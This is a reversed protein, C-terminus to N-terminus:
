ALNLNPGKPQKDSSLEFRIRSIKRGIKITVATMKTDSYSNIDRVATEIVYKYFDNTKKYKKECDLWYRLDDIEYEPNVDSQFFRDASVIEYIRIADYGSKSMWTVIKWSKRPDKHGTIMSTSHLQDSLLDIDRYLNSRPIQFADALETVSGQFTQLDKDDCIVRYIIYHILRLAQFRLDQKTKMVALVFRCNSLNEKNDM